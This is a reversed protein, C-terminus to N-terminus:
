TSQGSKGSLNNLCDGMLIVANKTGDLGITMHDIDGPMILNMADFRTWDKLFEMNVNPFVITQTDRLNYEITGQESPYKGFFRLTALYGKFHGIPDGINWKKNHVIVSAQENDTVFFTFYSGDDWFTSAACYNSEGRFGEVTWQGSNQDYFQEAYASGAMLMLSVCVGVLFKKM